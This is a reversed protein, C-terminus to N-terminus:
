VPQIPRLQYGIGRITQIHDGAPGLKKRLLSIRSDISRESQDIDDADSHIARVIQDRPFVRNPSGILCELVRFEGLSLSVAQGDVLVEYNDPIVTIRGVTLGRPRNSKGFGDCVHSSARRILSKLRAALERGSIPEFILEDAGCRLVEVVSDEDLDTALAVVPTLFLDPDKRIMRCVQQLRHIPMNGDVLLIDIVQTKLVNAAETLTRSIFIQFGESTLSNRVSAEADGDGTFFAANAIGSLFGSKMLTLTM